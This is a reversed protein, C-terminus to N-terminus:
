RSRTWLMVHAGCAPSPRTRPLLLTPLFGCPCRPSCRAAACRLLEKGGGHSVTQLRMVSPMIVGLSFLAARHTYVRGRRLLPSCTASSSLASSWGQQAISSAAPSGPRGSFKSNSTSLSLFGMPQRMEERGSSAIEKGRGSGARCGGILLYCRIAPHVRMRGASSQAARLPVAVRQGWPARPCMARPRSGRCHGGRPMQPPPFTARQPDADWAEGM